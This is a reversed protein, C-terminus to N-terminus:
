EKYYFKVGHIETYAWPRDYTTAKIRNQVEELPMDPTIVCLADLEKRTYAKRTWNEGSEPLNTETALKDVISRFSDLIRTYCKQTITFVTDERQIPFRSVEIIKGSDVIPEMYHCTMGFETAKNYIAFNTCGIGPYDPPGPHWNISAKSAKELLSKPIVWPSLYSFIYDGQWNQTDSNGKFGRACFVIQSDPFTNKLHEAGLQANQDGEKGIFLIKM